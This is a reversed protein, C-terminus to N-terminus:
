PVVMVHKRKSKPMASALCTSVGLSADFGWRLDVGTIDRPAIVLGHGAVVAVCAKLMEAHLRQCLVPTLNRPPKASPM